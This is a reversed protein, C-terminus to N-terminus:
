HVCIRLSTMTAINHQSKRHLFLSHSLLLFLATFPYPDSLPFICFLVIHSVIKTSSAIQHKSNKFEM